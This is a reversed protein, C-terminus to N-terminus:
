EGLALKTGANHAELVDSLDEIRGQLIKTLDERQVENLASKFVRKIAVDKYEGDVIKCQTDESTENRLELGELRKLQDKLESLLFIGHQVSIIEGAITIKSNANSEALASKWAILQKVVAEHEKIVVEYTFESEKGVEWCVVKSIKRTLKALQGKLSKITRLAKNKTIEVVQNDSM